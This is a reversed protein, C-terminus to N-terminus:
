GFISLNKNVRPHLRQFTRFGGGVRQSTQMEFFYIGCQLPNNMYDFKWAEKHM